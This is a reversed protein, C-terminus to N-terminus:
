AITLLPRSRAVLAQSNSPTGPPVFSPEAICLALSALHGAMVLGDAPVTFDIQVSCQRAQCDAGNTALIYSVYQQTPSYASFPTMWGELSVGGSLATRCATGTCKCQLTAQQARNAWGLQSLDPVTFCMPSGGAVNSTTSLTVSASSAGDNNYDEWLTVSCTVPSTSGTPAPTVKPAAVTLRPSSPPPSQLPAPSSNPAWSLVVMGYNRDPQMFSPDSYTMKFYGGDGWATGWQNRAIWYEGDDDYGVVAVSHGGVLPSVGDWQYVGSDAVYGYLDSHLDFYTMVAQGASIAAKATDIDTLVQSTFTGDVGAADAPTCTAPPAATCASYESGVTTSLPMSPDYPMCSAWRMGEQTAVDVPSEVDWGTTCGHYRQVALPNCFFVWQQSM